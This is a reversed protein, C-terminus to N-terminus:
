SSGKVSDHATCHSYSVFLSVFYTKLIAHVRVRGALLRVGM